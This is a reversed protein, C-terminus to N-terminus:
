RPAHCVKPQSGVIGLRDVCRTDLLIASATSPYLMTMAAMSTTSPHREANPSQATSSLFLLLTLSALRAPDQKHIDSYGICLFSLLCGGMRLFDGYAAHMDRLKEYFQAEQGNLYATYFRTLKAALPGPFIRCRHFSLRYVTLSLYVGVTFGTWSSVLRLLATTLTQDILFVSASLYLVSLVGASCIFHRMFQEFEFAPRALLLHFCIGIATTALFASNYWAQAVVIIPFYTTAVDM